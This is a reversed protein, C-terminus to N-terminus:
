LFGGIKSNLTVYWTFNYCLIYTLYHMVKSDRQTVNILSSLSMLSYRQVFCRLIVSLSTVWDLVDTYAIQGDSLKLTHTRWSGTQTKVWQKGGTSGIIHFLGIQMRQWAFITNMWVVTRRTVSCSPSNVPSMINWRYILTGTVYRM